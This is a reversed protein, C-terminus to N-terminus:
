FGESLEVDADIQWLDGNQHLRWMRGGEEFEASDLISQWADWYTEADPGSQCILVDAYSIGCNEADDQNFGLCFLSPIHVGFGDALVLKCDTDPNFISARNDEAADILVNLVSEAALRYGASLRDSIPCDILGYTDAATDCDELRSYRDAFWGVIDATYVPTLDDALEGVMDRADDASDLCQENLSDAASRILSYRLDNPLEGDHADRFAYTIWDPCNAVRAVYSSGDDRTKTELSSAILKFATAITAM